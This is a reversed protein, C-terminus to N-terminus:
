GIELEGDERKLIVRYSEDAQPLHGQASITWGADNQPFSLALECQREQGLWLRGSRAARARV